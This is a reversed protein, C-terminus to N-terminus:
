YLILYIPNNRRELRQNIYDIIKTAPILQDEIIAKKIERINM